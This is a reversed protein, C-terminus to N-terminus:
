GIAPCTSNGASDSLVIPDRGRGRRFGVEVRGRCGTRDCVAIGLRPDPSDQRMHHGRQEADLVTARLLM